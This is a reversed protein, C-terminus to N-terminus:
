LLSGLTQARKEFKLSKNYYNVAVPIFASGIQEGQDQESFHFSRAKSTKKTVFSIVATGSSYGLICPLTCSPLLLDGYECLWLDVLNLKGM